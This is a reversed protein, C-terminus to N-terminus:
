PMDLLQYRWLSNFLQHGQLLPTRHLQHQGATSSYEGRASKEADSESESGQRRSGRLTAQKCDHSDYSASGVAGIWARHLHGATAGQRTHLKAGDGAGLQCCLATFVLKTCGCHPAGRTAAGGGGGGSAAAPLPPLSRTRQQGVAVRLQRRSLAANQM